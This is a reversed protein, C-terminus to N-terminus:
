KVYMALTKGSIIQGKSDLAGGESASLPHEWLRNLHATNGNEEQMAIYFWLM